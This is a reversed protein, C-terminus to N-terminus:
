NHTKFKVMPQEDRCYDQMCVTKVDGYLHYGERLLHNVQNELEKSPGDFTGDKNSTSAVPQILSNGAAIKYNEINSIKPNFHHHRTTEENALAHAPLILLSVILPKMRM